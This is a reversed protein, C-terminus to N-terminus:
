VDEELLFIVADDVAMNATTTTVYWDAPISISSLMPSNTIIQTKGQSILSVQGTNNDIASTKAIKTTAGPSFKEIFIMRAKRSTPVQYPTDDESNNFSNNTTLTDSVLRIIKDSVKMRHVWFGVELYDGSYRKYNGM